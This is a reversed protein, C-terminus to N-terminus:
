KKKSSFAIEMKIMKEALLRFDFRLGHLTVGRFGPIPSCRWPKDSATLCFARLSM